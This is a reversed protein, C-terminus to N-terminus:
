KGYHLCHAGHKGVLISFTIRALAIVTAAFLDVDNFIQCDLASALQEVALKGVYLRMRASVGVKGGILRQDVQAIGHQAKREVVTTVKGVTRGNIERALIVVDDGVTNIGFGFKDIVVLDLTKGLLMLGLKNHTTSRCIRANDIELTHAFDCVLNTCVEHDIHCVNSAQNSSAQMRAGHGIGVHYGGGAMLGKATRTAAEDESVVLGQRLLDIGRYERTRLAARQHVDDCCLGNSEALGQLGFELRVHFVHNLVTSSHAFAHHFATQTQYRAAGVIM